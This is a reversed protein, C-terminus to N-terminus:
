RSNRRKGKNKARVRKKHVKDVSKQGRGRDPAVHTAAVVVDPPETIKDAVHAAETKDADAMMRMLRFVMANQAEFGLRAAHFPIAFWANM